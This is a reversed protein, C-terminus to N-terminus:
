EIVDQNHYCEVTFYFLVGDNYNEAGYMGHLSDMVAKVISLGVGSGGYERTRAKDVKYFKEFLHPLSDEPIPEGTNFVSVKVFDDEEDKSAKIIINKDGSLHNIANTYYNNLCEEIYFEDSYVMLPGESEFIINAGKSDALLKASSLYAKIVEVIDFAEYSYDVDGFELHNIDLLKKVMENMKHSEDMIVDCYYARTDEDDACEILGEAYGSILALPTKLEHSVNSLFESRMLELQERQKIDHELRENTNRLDVIVRHRSYLIILIVMLTAVFIIVYTFFTGAINASMRINDMSCRILFINGGDLIGWMDIYEMQSRSEIIKHIEYKDTKVLEEDSIFDIQDFLYYEFLVKSLRDLDRATAKLTKNETDVVLINMNNKEVISQFILDFEESDLTDTNSAENIQTYASIMAILSKQQYYYELLSGNVLWVLGLVVILGILFTLLPFLIYNKKNTNSNFKL